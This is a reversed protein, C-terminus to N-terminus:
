FKWNWTLKPTYRSMQIEEARSFDPSKQFSRGLNYAEYPQTAAKYTTYGAGGIVGLSFGIAINSLHDQPRGHFSLTSLGLIAGALGAFVITALQKRTGSLESVQSTGQAFASPAVYQTAFIAMVLTISLFFRKPLNIKKHAM